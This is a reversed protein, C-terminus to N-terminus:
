HRSLTQQVKKVLANTSAQWDGDLSPSYKKFREVWSVNYFDECWFRQFLVEHHIPCTVGDAVFGYYDETMADLSFYQFVAIGQELLEVSVSSNPVIAVHVCDPIKKCIVAGRISQFASVDSRPHPKISVTTVFPNQLLADVCDRVAHIHFISSLCIVVNVTLMNPSELIREFGSKRESRPVIYVDGRVAGISQYQDLTKQNRLISIDFDLPPFLDSIEAHQVYCVPVKFYRMVMAAAVPLDTHDNAVVLLAPLKSSRKFSCFLRLYLKSYSVLYKFIVAGMKVRPLYLLILIFVVGSLLREFFLKRKEEGFLFFLNKERSYISDPINKLVRSFFVFERENNATGGCFIISDKPVACYSQRARLCHRFLEKVVILISRSGASAFSYKEVTSPSNYIDPVDGYRIIKLNRELGLFFYFVFRAINVVRM